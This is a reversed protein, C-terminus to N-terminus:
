PMLPISLTIWRGTSNRKLIRSLSASRWMLLRVVEGRKEKMRWAFEQICEIRAAVPMTPWNGRGSDYAEVAAALAALADGETMVPFRGIMKRSLDAGNRVCVPSFVEQMPGEWRRLEGNLLFRNMEVPESLRYNVPIEAEAPFLGTMGEQLSM